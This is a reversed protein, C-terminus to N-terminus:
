VVASSIKSAQISVRYPKLTLYVAISIALLASLVSTAPAFSHFRDHAFGLVVPGVGLMLMCMGVGIGM